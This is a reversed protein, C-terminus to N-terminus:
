RKMGKIRDIEVSNYHSLGKGIEVEEWEDSTDLLRETEKVTQLAQTEHVVKLEQALSSNVSTASLRETIAQIAPSPPVSRSLPELSAVSSSMSAAAKINPTGPQSEPDSDLSTQPVHHTIAPTQLHRLSPSALSTAPEATDTDSAQSMSADKVHKQDRAPRRRRRVVLRVGQHSAFVGEVRVVGAPLLRGGSEKRTIARHAGEDLSHPRLKAVITHLRILKCSPVPLIYDMHSGGNEVPMTMDAHSEGGLVHNLSVRENCVRETPFPYM